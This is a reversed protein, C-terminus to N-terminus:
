YSYIIIPIMCYLLVLIKSKKVVRVKLDVLEGSFPVKKIM